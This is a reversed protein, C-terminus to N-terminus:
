RVDAISGSLWSRPCFFVSFAVGLAGLVVTPAASPRPPSRRFSTKPEDERWRWDAGAAVFEGKPPSSGNAGVKVEPEVAECPYGCSARAAVLIALPTPAARAAAVSWSLDDLGSGCGDSYTDGDGYRDCAGAIWEMAPLAPLPPPTAPAACPVPAGGVKSSISGPSVTRSCNTTFLQKRRTGFGNQSTRPRKSSVLKLSFNWVGFPVSRLSSSQILSALYKSTGIPM